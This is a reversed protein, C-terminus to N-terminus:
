DLTLFHQDMRVLNAIGIVRIQQIQGSVTRYRDFAIKGPVDPASLDDPVRLTLHSSGSSQLTWSSNIQIPRIPASGSVTPLLLVWSCTGLFQKRDPEGTLDQSSVQLCSAPPLPNPQPTPVPADLRFMRVGRGPDPAKRFTVVALTLPSGLAADAMGSRDGKMAPLLIAGWCVKERYERPGITNGAFTNLPQGVTNTQYVLEDELWLGRTDDIRSTLESPIAAAFWDPAITALDSLGPGFGTARRANSCLAAAALRRARTDGGANAALIGARDETAAQSLQFSAAPLLAAVGSLGLVLIGCAVLVELLTMGSTICKSEIRRGQISM